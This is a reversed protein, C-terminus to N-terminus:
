INHNITMIFHNLKMHKLNDTEIQNALPHYCGSAAPAELYILNICASLTEKSVDKCM